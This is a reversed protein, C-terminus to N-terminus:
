LSCYYEGMSNKTIVTSCYEDDLCNGRANIWPEESHTLDRLQYSEYKGYSEIVSDITEKEECTLVTEDGQIDDVTVIFKGRHANWLEKCVPGNAWAQFDEEFLPKDTWALSWAQSYYCLKQLKWTSIPGVKNLIYHAVDFVRAM